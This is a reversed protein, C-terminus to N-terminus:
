LGAGCPEGISLSQWIRTLRIWGMLWDNMNWVVNWLTAKWVKAWYPDNMQMCSTNTWPSKELRCRLYCPLWDCLNWEILKRVWCRRWPPSIRCRGHVCISEIEHAKRRMSCVFWHITRAEQMFLDLWVENSPTSLFFTFAISNKMTPLILKFYCSNCKKSSHIHRIITMSAFAGSLIDLFQFM